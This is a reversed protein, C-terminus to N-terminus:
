DPQIEDIINQEETTATLGSYNWYNSLIVNKKNFLTKDKFVEAQNFSFKQESFNSVVFYNRVEITITEEKKIKDFEIEEKSNILYYNSNDSKYVTKFCSKKINKSGVSTKDKERAVINPSLVSSVEMIIKKKRDYIITFDDLLGKSEQSPTVIMRYYDSNNSYSKVIFDFEKKAKSELLVNLYKFNYYNQMINNMNYGLLYDNINDSVLGYSRNQEVLIDTNIKDSNGSLQFNMLGDNYNSYTGNIKFFERSYVKLRSPITLKSISNAVIDKLIKQPHKNTIIIEDLTNVSSKLYITNQNDNLVTSRITKTEYGINSIQINSNGNLEFTIIGDTNSVFLQKTRVIFVSVDEVPLKTESDLFVITKTLNQCNCFTGFGLFFVIILNKM